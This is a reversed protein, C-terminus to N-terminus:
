LGRRRTARGNTALTMPLGGLDGARGVQAQHRDKKAKEDLQMLGGLELEIEMVLHFDQALTEVEVEFWDVDQAVARLLKRGAFCLDGFLSSRLSRSEICIGASGLMSDPGTLSATAMRVPRCSSCQWLFRSKRAPKSASAKARREGSGAPQRSSARLAYSCSREQRHRARSSHM